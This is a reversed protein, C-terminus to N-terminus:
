MTGLFERIVEHDSFPRRAGLISQVTEHGKGAVVVCDDETAARLAAQIARRRDLEVRVGAHNGLGAAIADAIARPDESRPNDSTLWILDSAEVAQGMSCRKGKDREGGAGFVIIVRARTLSRATKVTRALADPTHAYDVAVLPVRALLEFRGPPPVARALADIAPEPKVGATVATALAALANEVFVEGVAKTTLERGDPFWRNPALEARTGDPTVQMNRVVWQVSDPLAGRSPVGYLVVEVAEPIVERLLACNPDAANLIAAGGQPLSMFLQAKSALYHEPSRHADLHDHSLNTFTGFRVPYKRLIGLALAESSLELVCHKGGKDALERLTREMSAASLAYPLRTLGAYLGVTTVAASPGQAALIANLFTATSTKGNTGTIGFGCLSRYWPPVMETMASECAKWVATSASATEGKLM